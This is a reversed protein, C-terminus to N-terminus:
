GKKVSGKGINAPKPKPKDEAKDETEKKAPKPKNISPSPPAPKVDGVILGRDKLMPLEDNLVVGTSGDKFTVKSYKRM